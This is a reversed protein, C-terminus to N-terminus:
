LSGPADNLLLRRLLKGTPNRPLADVLRMEEPMKFKALKELCYARLEDLSPPSEPDAPVIVARVIEGWRRSPVGVVAVEDVAPHRILVAEVEQPYINEGGRIIRDNQRGSLYLYGEKDLRGLDGTHRWGDRDCLFSHEARVLVQGVGDRDPTEIAIECGPVPRGVSLLLDPHGAIARRHDDPSLCTLPSAETQGYFQVFRTEPLVDLVARLTDPHIPSAGYQLIRPRADGLVGQELLIELMTPVLQGYSMGLRGVRQWEEISFWGMPILAVGMGLVTLAMGAGAVHYFPSTSSFREGPEVGTMTQYAVTRAAFGGQHMPVPKPLGTTGSTHIVLMIDEPEPLQTPILPTDPTALKAVIHLNTRARDAVERAKELHGPSSLLVSARLQRVMAALEAVPLKTGLPAMPYRALAGGVTLALAEASQDMLLPVPKAPPISLRSLLSVAAQAHHLLEGGTVTVDDGVIAPSSSGQWHSLFMEAWTRAM